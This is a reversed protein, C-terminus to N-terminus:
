NSLIKKRTMDGWSQKTRFLWKFFGMIRWCSLLQRYGLNELVAIFFLKLLDAPKSYTRSAREELYLASLSLLVGLSITFLMIALFYSFSFAGVVGCYLMLFFGFVEIFPGFAEFILFFPFALKGAYGSNKMFALKLNGAMSELLGRQWRIRQNKLVRLSEPAETWCIPDHVFHISYPRSRSICHIHLRLILEMDEGITNERYGSVEIVERKRFLGFAGSIILIANLSDWGLRGFLFARLYENVQFRALINQPLATSVVHGQEIRCGNAIRITGGAVITNRDELFPRVIMGLAKRDLVSDADVVCVLPYHSVNIGANLADAKGGNEKDIVRLNPHEFSRFIRIIKRCELAPEYYEEFEYLRFADILNKLMGDKSGDNIVVVEFEPYELQLLSRISGVITNEENYAPVLVSIPIEHRAGHLPLTELFHNSKYRLLEKYAAINLALYSINLGFFYGVFILSFFFAVDQSV